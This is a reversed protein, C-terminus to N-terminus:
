RAVVPCVLTTSRRECEGVRRLRPAGRRSMSWGAWRPDADAAHHCFGICPFMVGRAHPGAAALEGWTAGKHMQPGRDKGAEGAGRRVARPDHGAAALGAM